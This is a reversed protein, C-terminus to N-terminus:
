HFKSENESIIHKEMEKKKTIEKYRSLDNGVKIKTMGSQRKKITHQIKAYMNRTKEWHQLDRLAQAKSQHGEDAMAQALSEQYNLRLERANRKCTRYRKYAREIKRDVEPLLPHTNGKIGLKKKM